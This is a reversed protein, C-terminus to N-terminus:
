TINPNKGNSTEQEPTPNKSELLWHTCITWGGLLAVLVMATMKVIVLYLTDAPVNMVIYYEIVAFSVGGLIKRPLKDIVKEVPIEM